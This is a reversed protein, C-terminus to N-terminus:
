NNGQSSTPKANGSQIKAQIKAIIQAARGQAVQVLSRDKLVQELVPVLRAADLLRGQDLDIELQLLEKVVGLRDFRILYEIRLAHQQTQSIREFLATLAMAEPIETHNFSAQHNEAGDRYALTKKGMNAVRRNSELTAGQFRNLKRALTFIEGAAEGSLRFEIPADDNPDTRYVAAGSERVTISYYAPTSNPFDKTFIVAPDSEASAQAAMGVVCLALLLKGGASRRQAHARFGPNHPAPPAPRNTM